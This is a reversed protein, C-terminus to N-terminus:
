TYHIYKYAIYGREGGAGVGGCLRVLVPFGPFSHNLVHCGQQHIIIDQLFSCNEIYSVTLFGDTISRISIGLYWLFRCVGGRGIESKRSSQFFLIFHSTGLSPTGPLKNIQIAWTDGTFLFSSFYGLLERDAITFFTQTLIHVYLYTSRIWSM